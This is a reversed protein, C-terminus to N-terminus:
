PQTLLLEKELARCVMEPIGQRSARYFRQSLNISRPNEIGPYTELWEQIEDQEWQRLPLKLWRFATAELECLCNPAFCEPSLEADVVIAAIFKVRQYKVRDNLREVLPMWFYRVFWSLTEEQCPLDDWKRIELFVTTGSRVSQCIKEIVLEALEEPTKHNLSGLYEGLQELWGYENLSHGSYFELEHHLFNGTGRKFEARVRQLCLDGSMLLSEQLLLLADGREHRFSRILRNVEDMVDGFDIQPLDEKFTLYQRGHNTSKAKLKELKNWIDTYQRKILQRRSELTDKNDDNLEGEIQIGITEHKLVLKSYQEELEKIELEDPSLM